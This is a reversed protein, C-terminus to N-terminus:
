GQPDTTTSSTPAPEVPATASPVPASTPTSATPQPSPEPASSAVPGPAESPEDNSTASASPSAASPEPSTSGAPKPDTTRPATVQETVQNVTTGDGGSLSSGTALEVGTLAVGALAFAALAAGAVSKWSVSRGPPPPTALDGAPASPQALAATSDAGDRGEVLEISAPLPSGAVRGQWVTQVRARTSRLSATYVSSAVAAVVSALAAGVVTGAVSLRSGLYAATMAALAGGLIQTLSLEIRPKAPEEYRAAPPATNQPPRTDTSLM